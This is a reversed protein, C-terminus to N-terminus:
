WRRDVYPFRKLDQFTNEKNTQPKDVNFHTSSKLIFIFFMVALWNSFNYGTIMLRNDSKILRHVTAM